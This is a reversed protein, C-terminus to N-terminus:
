KIKFLVFILNYFMKLFNSNEFTWKIVDIKIELSLSYWFIPVTWLLKARWDVTFNDDSDDDSSSEQHNSDKSMVQPGRGHITPKTAKLEM